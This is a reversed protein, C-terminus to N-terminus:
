RRDHVVKAMFKPRINLVLTPLATQNEAVEFQIPNQNNFLDNVYANGTQSGDDSMLGNGYGGYGDVAQTFDCDKVVSNNIDNFSVASSSSEKFTLKELVIGSLYPSEIGGAAILNFFGVITGNLIAVNSSQIQIGNYGIGYMQNPTNGTLSFGRMDITVPAPANVTIAQGTYSLNAVFYYYGSKTIKAPLSTIPTSTKPFEPIEPAQAPLASILPKINLVLGPQELILVPDHTTILDNVYENGSGNGYIAAYGLANVAQTFDCDKILSENGELFVSTSSSKKFTLKELVIGSLPSPPSAEEYGATIADYFGVITGNLIKVNSSQISIGVPVYYGTLSQVQTPGTFTFGRMDIRVPGPANVMIACTADINGPAPVFTTAYMNAVFYYNGPKTIRIPLSAIPTSTPFEPIAAQAPLAGLALAAVALFLKQMAKPVGTEWRLLYLDRPPSLIFDLDM